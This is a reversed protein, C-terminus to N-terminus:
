SPIRSPRALKEQECSKHYKEIADLLPKIRPDKTVDPLALDYQENYLKTSGNRILTEYNDPLLFEAREGLVSRFADIYIKLGGKDLDGFHIYRNPIRKLWDIWKGYSNKGFTSRYTFLYHGGDNFLYSYDKIRMFTSYNEVGVILLEPDIEFLSQEDIEICTGIPPDITFEKKDFSIIIPEISNLRIGNMIDTGFAKTDNVLQAAEHRTPHGGAKIKELTHLYGELDDTGALEAAISKVLDPRIPTIFKSVGEQTFAVVNARLLRERLDKSLDGKKVKRGNILSLLSRADNLRLKAKM